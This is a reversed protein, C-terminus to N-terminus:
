LDRTLGRATQRSTSRTPLELLEFQSEGGPGTLTVRDGLGVSHSPRVREGNLRAHGELIARGAQTRSKFRRLLFLAVDFRM